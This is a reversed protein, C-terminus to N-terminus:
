EAKTLEDAFPWLNMRRKRVVRGCVSKIKIQVCHGSYGTGCDDLAVLRVKSAVGTVLRNSTFTVSIRLDFM